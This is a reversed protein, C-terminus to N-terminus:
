EPLGNATPAYGSRELGGTIAKETRVDRVAQIVADLPINTMASNDQGAGCPFDQARLVTLRPTEPAFKAPPTPGFLSILPREAAALLHGIGADNAVAVQCRQALALTLLPNADPAAPGSLPLLVQPLAARLGDHWEKEQPGLLVVPQWGKAQLAQGLAIFRELPWCKHRGGAGPALALYRPGQPLLRCATVTHHTPPAPLDVKELWADPHGYRALSVLRLLQDPLRSPRAGGGKCSSFCGGACDSIFRQHAIRRLIASTIFRRQTDIILDFGRGRLPRRLLESPRNGIGAEEIIEDILGDTLPKLSGNFVTKGKGALWTIRARPYAARLARLFSLKMLGDGLLDLGVYVLISDPIHAAKQAPPPAAAAPSM